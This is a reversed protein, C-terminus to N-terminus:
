VYLIIDNKSRNYFFLGIVMVIAGAITGRLMMAPEPWIHYLFVDRAQQVYFYAPNFWSVLKQMTDPLSTLPYFLPTLYVWAAIFVAYLHHVDRVFVDSQALILGFGFAFMATELFVIPFAIAHITLPTGTFILVIAFAILSFLFNVVNGLFTSLPFIYYPLRTKRMLAGNNIFSRVMSTTSETIFSFMMRGAFLYVPYNEIGNSFMKSFVVYMIIMVCLPNLVCWLYGLMSQRYKKKLERSVLNNLLPIYSIFREIEPKLTPTKVKM